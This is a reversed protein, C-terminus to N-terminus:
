ACKKTTSTVEHKPIFFVTNIGKITRIGPALQGLENAFYRKWTFKNDGTILYRYEQSVGNVLHVVANDEMSTIFNAAM